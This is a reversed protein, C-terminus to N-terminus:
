AIKKEWDGPIYTSARANSARGSSYVAGANLVLRGNEWVEVECAILLQIDFKTEIFLGGDEFEMVFYVSRGGVIERHPNTGRVRVFNMCRSVLDNLKEQGVKM